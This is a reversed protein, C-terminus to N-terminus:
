KKRDESICYGDDSQCTIKTIATEVLKKEKIEKM